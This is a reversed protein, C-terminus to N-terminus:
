AWTSVVTQIRSLDPSAKSERQVLLQADSLQVSDFKCRAFYSKLKTAMSKKTRGSLEGWANWYIIHQLAQRHKGELRLVDALSENVSSLLTLTQLETFQGLGTAHKAYADQQQHFFYWADDYRGEKVALKGQQGAYAALGLYDDIGNLSNPKLPPRM